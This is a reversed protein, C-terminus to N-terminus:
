RTTSTQSTASTPGPSHICRARRRAACTTSCWSSPFTRRKRRRPQRLRRTVRLGGSNRPMTRSWPGSSIPTKRWWVASDDIRETAEGIGLRGRLDDITQAGTDSAGDDVVVIGGIAVLDYMKALAEIAEADSHGIRLLSIQEIPASALADAPRGQLFRVREDLLRFRSFGDRVTDLDTWVDLADDANREVRFGDAIWVTKDDISYADLYGRMFIAAGGRATGCEVLDGHQRWEVRLARQRRGPPLQASWSM